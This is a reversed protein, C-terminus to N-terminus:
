SGCFNAECVANCKCTGSWFLTCKCRFTSWNNTFISCLYGKHLFFINTLLLYKDKSDIITSWTCWMVFVFDLWFLSPWQLMWNLIYSKKPIFPKRRRFLNKWFVFLHLWISGIKLTQQIFFSNMKRPNLKWSIENAM